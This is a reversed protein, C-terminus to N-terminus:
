CNPCSITDQQPEVPKNCVPCTLPSQIINFFRKQPNYKCSKINNLGLSFVKGEGRSRIFFESGKEGSRRDGIWEVSGSFKSAAPDDSSYITARIDNDFLYTKYAKTYSLPEKKNDDKEDMVDIIKEPGEILEKTIDEDPLSYV